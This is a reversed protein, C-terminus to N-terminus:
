VSFKGHGLDLTEVQLLHPQCTDSFEGFNVVNPITRSSPLMQQVATKWSAHM